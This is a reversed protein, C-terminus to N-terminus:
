KLVQIKQYSNKKIIKSMVLNYESRELYALFTETKMRTTAQRKENMSLAIEGFESGSKQCAVERNLHVYSFDVVTSLRLLRKWLRRRIKTDCDFISSSLVLKRQSQSFLQSKDERNELM